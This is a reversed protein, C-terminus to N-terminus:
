QESGAADRRSRLEKELEDRDSEMEVTLLISRSLDAASAALGAFGRALKEPHTVDEGLSIHRQVRECLDRLTMSLDEAAYFAPQLDANSVPQNRAM